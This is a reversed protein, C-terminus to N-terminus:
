PAKIVELLEVEFVLTAGPKILPPMGRDGYALEPPCVIRSKGGAKMRQLAESWCPIVGGVPFVVPQGRTVSSDFVSGDTLTGHYHVRVQDAGTPSAGTGAKLTRIVLGSKTRTAGPETAARDLFAQGAKREAAALAATRTRQLEQLRAVYAPLDVRPSRGLVADALGAQVLELEAPSLTFGALSRAVVLGLAYFTKEEETRLEPPAGAASGSLLLSALLALLLRRM